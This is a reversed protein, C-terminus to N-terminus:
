FRELWQDEQPGGLTPEDDAMAMQVQERVVRQMIALLRVARLDQGISAREDIYDHIQLLEELTFM